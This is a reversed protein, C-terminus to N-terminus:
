DYLTYRREECMILMLLKKNKAKSEEFTIFDQESALCSKYPQTHLMIITDNPCPEFHVSTFTAQFIKPYFIEQIAYTNNYIRGKLCVSTEVLQEEQFENYISELEEGTNNYFLLLHEGFNIENDELANSAIQGRITHDIPGFIFYAALVLMFIISLGPVIVRNFFPVKDKDEEELVEYLIDREDKNM